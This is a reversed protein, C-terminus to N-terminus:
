FEKLNEFLNGLWLFGIRGMGKSGYPLPFVVLCFNEKVISRPAVSSFVSAFLVLSAEEELSKNIAFRIM